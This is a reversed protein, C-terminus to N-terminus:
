DSSKPLVLKWYITHMGHWYSERAVDRQEALTKLDAISLVKSRTVAEEIRKTAVDYTRDYWAFHLANDYFGVFFYEVYGITKGGAIDHDLEKFFLVNQTLASWPEGAKLDITSTSIGTHMDYGTIQISCPKAKSCSKGHDFVPTVILDSGSAPTDTTTTDETWTAPLLYKYNVVPTYSSTWYSEKAVEKQEAFTILDHIGIVKSRVVRKPKVYYEFHLADEYYGTFWYAVMGITKGGAISPDLEKFYLVNDEAHSYANWSKGPDLDITSTSIGQHTDYGTIQISCPKAKSCSQEVPTVKLSSVAALRRLVVAGRSLQVADGIPVLFFCILANFLCFSMSSMSSMSLM